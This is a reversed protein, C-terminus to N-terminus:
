SSISRGRLYSHCAHLNQLDVVQLRFSSMVLVDINQKTQECHYNQACAARYVRSLCHRRRHNTLAVWSGIRGWTLHAAAKGHVCCGRGFLELSYLADRDWPAQVM